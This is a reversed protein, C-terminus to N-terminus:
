ETRKIIHYGLDTKIVSSVEGVKLNFAAKEFVDSFDGRRFKGLDGGVSGSTRDKSHLNAMEEFDAGAKIQNLIKQAEADTDLLIHSARIYFAAVQNLDSVLSQNHIWGTVQVKTWESQKELVEVRVGSLMVGMIQGGPTLRINENLPKVYKKISQGFLVISPVFLLTLLIWVYRLRAIQM